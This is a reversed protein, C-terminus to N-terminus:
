VRQCVCLFGWTDVGAVSVRVCDIGALTGLDMNPGVHVCLFGCSGLGKNIAWPLGDGIGSVSASGCGPARCTFLSSACTGSLGRARVRGVPEWVFVQLVFVHRGLTHASGLSSRGPARLM